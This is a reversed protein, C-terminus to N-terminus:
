AVWCSAEAIFIADKKLNAANEGPESPKAKSASGCGHGAHPTSGYYSVGTTKGPRVPLNFPVTIGQRAVFDETARIVSKRKEVQTVRGVWGFVESGCDLLYCKKNGLISKSLAGDDVIAVECKGEHFQHLMYLQTDEEVTKIAATGAEYKLGSPEKDFLPPGDYLGDVEGLLREEVEEPEEDFVPPGDYLLGEVQEGDFESIGVRFPGEWRGYDRDLGWDHRARYGDAFAVEERRGKNYRQDDGDVFVLGQRRM